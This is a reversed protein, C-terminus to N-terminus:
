FEKNLNNKKKKTFRGIRSGLMKTAILGCLGGLM